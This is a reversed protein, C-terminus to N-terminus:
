LLFRSFSLTSLLKSFDVFTQFLLLYHLSLFSNSAFFCSISLGSFHSSSNLVKPFRQRPPESCLGAPTFRTCTCPISISRTVCRCRRRSPPHGGAGPSRAGGWGRLPARPGRTRPRHGPRPRWRAAGGESPSRARLAGRFPLRHLRARGGAAHGPGRRPARRASFRSVGNPSVPMQRPRRVLRGQAGTLFRPGQM